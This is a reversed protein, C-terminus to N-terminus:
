SVCCCTISIPWNLLKYDTVFGALEFLPLLAIGFDRYGVAQFHPWVDWMPQTAAAPGLDAMHAYLNILLALAANILGAMVGAKPCGDECCRARFQSGAPRFWFFITYLVQQEMVLGCLASAALIWLLSTESNVLIRVLMAGGAFPVMYWFTSRETGLGMLTSLSVSIEMDARAMAVVLLLIM